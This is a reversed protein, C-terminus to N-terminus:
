PDRAFIGLLEVPNSPWCNTRAARYDEVEWAELQHKRNLRATEKTAPITWCNRTGHIPTDPLSMSGHTENLRLRLNSYASSCGRPDVNRQGFRKSFLEQTLPFIGRGVPGFLTPYVGEERLRWVEELDLRREATRRSLSRESALTAGHFRLM